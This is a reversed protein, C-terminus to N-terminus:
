SPTIINCQIVSVINRGGDFVRHELIEYGAESYLHSLEDLTFSHYYRTHSGIKIQYDGGGVHSSTYRPQELLNWNTMYIYGSPKLIKKADHLVQARDERTTLHHYSALLILADYRLTDDRHRGIDRMDCMDFVYEPHLSRAERIMGSSSDTGLYHDLTYGARELHELLRGNGCGIDMLSRIERTQMDAIIHDVEPWHLDKRSESFTEAFADYSTSILTM